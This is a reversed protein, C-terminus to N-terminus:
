AGEVTGSFTVDQLSTLSVAGSIAEITAATQSITGPASLTVSAGVVNNAITFTNAAGAASGTVSVTVGQAAAVTGITTLAHNDTLAISGSDSTLPGTASFVNTADTLSINGKAHGEITAATLAGSTQTVAGNAFLGLTLASSGLSQGISLSTTLTSFTAGDVSGLAITGASFGTLGHGGFNDVLLGDLTYGGASARSMAILGTTSVSGSIAFNDATLVISGAASVADGADVQLLGALGGAALKIAGHSTLAGAVHLNHAGNSLDLAGGTAFSGVESFNNAGGTLTAAGAVASGTLTGGIIGAGAASEVIDGASATLLVTGGAGATIKSLITLSGAAGISIDGTLPGANVAGAIILDGTDALAVFGTATSLLGTTGIANSGTLAIGTAASSTLLPTTLVGSGVVSGLTSNLALSVTAKVAADALDVNGSGANIIVTSGSLKAPTASAAAAIGLSVGTNTDFAVGGSASLTTAGATIAFGNDVNVTGSTTVILSRSAGLNLTNPKGDSIAFDIDGTASTLTENITQAELTAASMWSAAGLKATAPKTDSIVLGLPDILLGGTTGHAARGDTLGTFGVFEGSVEIEGGNGLAAGGLM